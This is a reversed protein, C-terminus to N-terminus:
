RGKFMDRFADIAEKIHVFLFLPFGIFVCAMGFLFLSAGMWSGLLETVWEPM